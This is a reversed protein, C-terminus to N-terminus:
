IPENNEVKQELYKLDDYTQHMNLISNASMPIGLKDLVLQTIFRRRVREVLNNNKDDKHKWNKTNYPDIEIGLDEAHSGIHMRDNIYLPPGVSIKTVVKNAVYKQINILFELTELYREWTENYFGSLILMHMQLKHEKFKELEDYVDRVTMQKKMDELVADSGSEVGVVLNVAGSRKILSYLDKPIHAQPRTIYQGFWTIKKSPDTISDNHEALIELWERFAKFSGNVLSDTFEFKYVNHKRSLEIIEEGIHTGTRYSFKGFQGPVDCFTCKRVCGRSGTVPLFKGDAYLYRDLKYDDYNPIPMNFLIKDSDLPEIQSTTGCVSGLYDIFQDFGFGFFVQDVLKKETMFQHFPKLLDIKKYKNFSKLGNANILLGLGGLIIKVQPLEKRVAEILWVTSRHQMVSFVSLGLVRPNYKKITDVSQRIWDNIAQQSEDSIHGSNAFGNELQIFTDINSNCQNVYFELNLDLAVASYGASMAASKILAPAAPVRDVFMSPLSCIVLDTTTLGKAM